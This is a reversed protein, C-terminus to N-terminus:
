YFVESTKKSLLMPENNRLGKPRSGNNISVEQYWFASQYPEGM